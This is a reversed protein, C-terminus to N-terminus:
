QKREFFGMQKLFSVQDFYTVIETIRGDKLNFRSCNRLTYKKGRMYEPVNAELNTMQGSSTYEAIVAQNTAVINTISYKLYPDSKFYRAYTATLESKGTEIGDWNPSELLVSDDCFKTISITDHNNLADFFQHITNINNRVEKNSQAILRSSIILLSTLLFIKIMFSFIKM